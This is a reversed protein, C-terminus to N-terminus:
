VGVVMRREDGRNNWVVKLWDCWFGICDKDNLGGELVGFIM